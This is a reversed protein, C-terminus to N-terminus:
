VACTKLGDGGSSTALEKYRFALILYTNEDFNLTINTKNARATYTLNRWTLGQIKAAELRHNLQIFLKVFQWVAVDSPTKLTLWAM